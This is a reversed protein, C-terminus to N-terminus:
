AEVSSRWRSVAGTGRHFRYHAVFSKWFRVNMESCGWHRAVSQEEYEAGGSYRLPRLHIPNKGKGGSVEALRVHMPTLCSPCPLHRFVSPQSLSQPQPM